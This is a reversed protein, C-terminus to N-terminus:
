ANEHGRSMAVHFGLLSDAERQDIVGEFDTAINLCLSGGTSLIISYQEVLEDASKYDKDKQSPDYGLSKGITDTSQWLVEVPGPSEGNQYTFFDPKYELEERDVGIDDNFFIGRSKLEELFIDILFYCTNIREPDYKIEEVGTFMFFHPEYTLLEQIELMTQKVFYEACPRKGIETWSYIIGFRIGHVFCEEQFMRLIDRESKHSEPVHTDWLCYGDNYKATVAVYTAGLLRASLVLDSVRERTINLRAAYYPSSGYNEKHFAKTEKTGLTKDVFSAKLRKYYLESGSDIEESSKGASYAYFNYLGIHFMFGLDGLIHAMKICIYYKKIEIRM